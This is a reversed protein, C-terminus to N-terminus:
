GPPWTTVAVNDLEVQGARDSAWDWTGGGRFVSWSLHSIRVDDRTRFVHDRVDLVQDGDLWARLAGDARGVTNMRYCQKVSHWLGDVFSRNWRVNDGYDGAQTPGYLYTVVTNTPGAWSYARPGLWMLRGSWGQDGPRHGGSPLDEPVGPATGQLGPLKGGLSWDFGDSFRVEYSLCAADVPEALPVYAVVGNNGPSLGRVTGAELTVRYHGGGGRDRVVESDDLVSPPVEAGTEEAFGAVDLPGGPAADWSLAALLRAAPAAAPGPLRLRHIGEGAREAAVLVTAGDGDVEVSRWPATRPLVAVDPEAGFWDYRHVRGGALLVFGEGGPAFAASAVGPPADAV